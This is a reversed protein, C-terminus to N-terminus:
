FPAGGSLPYKSEILRALQWGKQTLNFVDIDKSRRVHAVYEPTLRDIKLLKIRGQLTIEGARATLRRIFDIEDHTPDIM